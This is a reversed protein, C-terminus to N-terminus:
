ANTVVQAKFNLSIPARCQSMQLQASQVSTSHISSVLRGAADLIQAGGQSIIKGGDVSNFSAMVCTQGQLTEGIQNGTQLDVLDTTAAGAPTGKFIRCNGQATYVSLISLRSAASNPMFRVVDGPQLTLPKALPQVDNHVGAVGIPILTAIQGQRLVYCYGASNTNAVVLGHTITAGPKYDGINMASVTLAPDTSLDAETGNTASGNYLPIQDATNTQLYGCVVVM